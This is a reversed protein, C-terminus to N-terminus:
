LEQSETRARKSGVSPNVLASQDSEIQGSTEPESDYEETDPYEEPGKRVLLRCMSLPVAKRGKTNSPRAPDIEFKFRPRRQEDMRLFLAPQFSESGDPLMNRIVYERQDYTAFPHGQPIPVQNYHDLTELRFIAPTPCGRLEQAAADALVDPHDANTLTTMIGFECM